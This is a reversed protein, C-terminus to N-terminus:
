QLYLMKMFKTMLLGSHNFTFGLNTALRHATLTAQLGGFDHSIGSTLPTKHLVIDKVQSTQGLEEYNIDSIM